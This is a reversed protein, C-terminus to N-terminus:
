RAPITKLPRRTAQNACRVPSRARARKWALIPTDRTFVRRRERNRTNARARDRWSRLCHEFSLSSHLTHGVYRLYRATVLFCWSRERPAYILSSVRTGLVAATVAAATAAATATVAVAVAPEVLRRNIRVSFPSAHASAARLRQFHDGRAGGRIRPVRARRHSIRSLLSILHM